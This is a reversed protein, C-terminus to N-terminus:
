LKHFSYRIASGTTLSGTYYTLHTSTLTEITYTTIQIFLKGSSTVEWDNNIDTGSTGNICKKYTGTTATSTFEIHYVTSDNFYVTGGAGPIVTGNSLLEQKDYSWNGVLSLETSNLTVATSNSTSSVPAPSSKKCSTLGILIAAIFIITKM